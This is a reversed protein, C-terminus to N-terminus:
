NRTITEHMNLLARCVATWAAQEAPDGMAQPAEGVSLLEKAEEPRTRYAALEQEYLNRCVAKEDPTAPRSLVLEFLWGIREAPTRGGEAITRDALKRAAEVFSPDNLLVLAASPTNSRPREIACEERSPADFAKLMPHLFQRQWHTYLGRRWLGEGESAKYKRKPFNLHAYYGKPQYPKVSKGGIRRVLLGSVALANDRIMEADLRFRSQRALLRNYPDAERLAPPTLSSQRYTASTVMLRVMHKVDWGSRVFETALWDLLKPHVPAEGQAGLDDMVRSIAVGHFMKWLRNVFARAVMPNNPSVLWNALDLRNARGAKEIQPLFHPVAPEVVPGSEDMWNGRPLVRMTRPKTAVTVLTSTGSKKLAERRSELDAIQKRLPALSPAITRFYNALEKNQAASRQTSAIKLIKSIKGPLGSGGAKLPGPDATVALRFRGAMHHSGYHHHMRVVLTHKGEPLPDAFAFVASAAAGSKGKMVAWGKKDRPKTKFLTKIEYSNQSYTATPDTLKLPKGAKLVEFGTLVLNGNGARGPGKSPLRKDKLLELRLGTAPGQVTVTLEYTDKEPGKKSAFISGDKEIKLKRHKGAEMTTPRLTQWSAGETQSQEWAAQEADLNPHPADLKKQLVAREHELRQLEKRDAETQVKISTGFNGSRSAGKYIGKETIDAFFAAFSYFDKQTYPDFKHDHCEACGMTAGMWVASANRVREAAYKALYEKPQVGGEASMMGLRNYGSAIKHRETSEPLLDGALQERTFRDYPVNQNFSEIVYDRYPSVSVNQDGHYGVTDAYRVIDLWHMAMREGYHPSALLRDVLKAYAKPAKDNVFAEVQKPTPPLGTLDFSL